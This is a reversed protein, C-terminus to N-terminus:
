GQILKYTELAALGAVISTSTAIAPIIKGAIQKSTHRDATPIRYNNARLNSTAVVFDMHLNEDDDKEFNLAQIELHERNYSGIKEIYKQAEEESLEEGSDPQDDDTLSIKVGVKPEFEPVKIAGLLEVIKERDRIQQIGYTEAKLNAAALIFDVHALCNIDFNVPEPMKKAGSWFPQGKPTMMDPPFNFLLQKIQNAFLEEFQERAWQVCDQFNNPKTALSKEISEL